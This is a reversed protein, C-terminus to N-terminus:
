PGWDQIQVLQACAVKGEQAETKRDAYHPPNSNKNNHFTEPQQQDPGDDGLHGREESVGNNANSWYFTVVTWNPNFTTVDKFIETLQQHQSM